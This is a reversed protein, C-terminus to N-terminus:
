KYYSYYRCFEQLICFIMFMFSVGWMVGFTIEFFMDNKRHSIYTLIGMSFFLVYIINM